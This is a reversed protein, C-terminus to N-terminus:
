FQEDPERPSSAPDCTVRLGAVTEARLRWSQADSAFNEFHERRLWDEAATCTVSEYSWVSWPRDGNWTIELANRDVMYYHTGPYLTASSCGTVLLALALMLGIVGLPVAPFRKRSSGM